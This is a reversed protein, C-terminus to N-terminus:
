LINPLIPLEGPNPPTPFAGAESSVLLIGLNGSVPLLGFVPPSYVCNGLSAGRYITNILGISVPTTLTTVVGWPSIWPSRALASYFWYFKPEM